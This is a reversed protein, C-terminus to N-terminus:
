KNKLQGFENVIKKVKCERCYLKIKSKYDTPQLLKILNNM